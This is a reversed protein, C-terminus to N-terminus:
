MLEGPVDHRIDRMAFNFAESTCAHVLNGISQTRRTLLPICMYIQSLKAAERVDFCNRVPILCRLPLRKSRAVDILHPKPTPSVNPLHAFTRSCARFPLSALDPCWIKPAYSAMETGCISCTGTGTGEDKREM